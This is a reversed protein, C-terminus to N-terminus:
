HFSNIYDCWKQAIIDESLNEVIEKAKEGLSDAKQPNEALAIMQKALAYEDHPPVVIGNENNRILFAAGGPSCDTSICPLGIAMAEVLANPIGEFDSSLVFIKANKISEQSDSTVGSLIVNDDLKLNSILKKIRLEDPGDGYIVLKYKPYKQQFISFAKILIDNRKQFIDLRGVTVVVDERECFPKIQVNSKCLVPNPIIATPAKINKYFEAVKPLQYVAGRAFRFFPKVLHMVYYHPKFPDNRECVISKSETGLCALVNIINADLLFSVVCKPKEQRIIQRATSLQYLFNKNELDKQIWKVNVPVDKVDNRMYTFITVDFGRDSLARAVWLFMKPAGSYHLKKIIMLIKM